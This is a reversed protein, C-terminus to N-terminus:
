IKIKMWTYPIAIALKCIGGRGPNLSRKEGIEIIRDAKWAKICGQLSSYIPFFFTMM